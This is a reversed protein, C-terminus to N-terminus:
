IIQWDEITGSESSFSVGIKFLQRTDADYPKAYGQREIQNLAEILESNGKM